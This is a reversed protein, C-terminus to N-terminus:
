VLAWNKPVREVQDETVQDEQEQCLLGLREIGLPRGGSPRRGGGPPPFFGAGRAVGGTAM